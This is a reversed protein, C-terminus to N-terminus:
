GRRRRTRLRCAAVGLDRVRDVFDVAGPSTAISNRLKEFVGAEGARAASEDDDRLREHGIIGGAV